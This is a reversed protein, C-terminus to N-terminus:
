PRRALFPGFDYGSLVFSGDRAGDRGYYRQYSRGHEFPFQMQDFVVGNLKVLVEVQEGLTIELTIPM